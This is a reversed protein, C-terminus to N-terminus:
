FKWEFSDRLIQAAIEGVYDSTASSWVALAFTRAVGEVFEVLGPRRYIHYPGVRFDAERHLETESGFILCEDLDLILLARQQPSNDLAQNFCDCLNQQQPKCIER